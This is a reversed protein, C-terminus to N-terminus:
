INFSFDLHCGLHCGINFPRYSLTLKDNLVTIGIQYGGPILISFFKFNIKSHRNKCWRIGNPLPMGL